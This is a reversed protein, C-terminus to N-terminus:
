KVEYFPKLLHIMAEPARMPRGTEMNVFALTTSGEHVLTEELFLKYEFTIRSTPLTPIIIQLRILDDYRAPKIYKSHSELVPMMIGSEELSRYSMGLSRLAEVRGVEYYAAYNGYYVYGMQDTESYRVRVETETSYM